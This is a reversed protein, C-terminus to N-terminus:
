SFHVLPAQSDHWPTQAPSEAQMPRRFTAVADPRGTVDQQSPTAVIGRGTVLDVNQPRLAAILGDGRALRSATAIFSPTTWVLHM